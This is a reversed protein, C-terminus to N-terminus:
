PDPDSGLSFQSPKVSLASGFLPVGFCNAAGRGCV